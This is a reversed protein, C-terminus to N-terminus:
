GGLLRQKWTKMDNAVSCGGHDDNCQSTSQIFALETFTGYFAFSPQSGHQLAVNGGNWRGNWGCEGGITSNGVAYYGNVGTEYIWIIPEFMLSYESLKNIDFTLGDNEMNDM